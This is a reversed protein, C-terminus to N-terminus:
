DQYRLRDALATFHEIRAAMVREHDDAAWEGHIDAFYGNFTGNENISATIANITAGRVVWDIVGRRELRDVHICLFETWFNPKPLSECFERDKLTELADYLASAIQHNTVM